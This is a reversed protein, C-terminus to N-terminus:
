FYFTSAERDSLTVEHAVTDAGREASPSPTNETSPGASEDDLDSVYTKNSFPM